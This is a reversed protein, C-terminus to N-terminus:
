SERLEEDISLVRLWVLVVRVVTRVDLRDSEDLELLTSAASLVAFEEIM